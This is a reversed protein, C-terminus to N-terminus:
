VVVVIVRVRYEDPLAALLIEFAANEQQRWYLRRAVHQARVPLVETRLTRHWAKIAPLRERLPKSKSNKKRRPRLKHRGIFLRWWKYSCKFPKAEAPAKADAAKVGTRMASQLWAATVVDGRARRENFRWVVDAEVQPYAAPVVRGVRVINAIPRETAALEMKM